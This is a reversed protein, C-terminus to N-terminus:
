VISGSCRATPHKVLIHSLKSTTPSGHWFVGSTWLDVTGLEADAASDCPRNKCDATHQYEENANWRYPIDERSSDQYAAANRKKKAERPM